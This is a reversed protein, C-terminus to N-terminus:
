ARQAQIFFERNGDGGTIPSAHWALVRLGCASCAERLRAEVRAYASEDKVLGGRSIDAPQLEFQPKVLMLLTGGLALLPALAPLVLRLSIFSLDGCIFGFGGAPADAGFTAPTLDRANVGELTLVRADTALRAHLQGHGVDVGIVRAAGAALMVDTFGGTSQGVDLATV